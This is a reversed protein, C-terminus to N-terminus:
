RNVMAQLNKLIVWVLVISIGCLSIITLHHAVFGILEVARLRISILLAHSHNKPMVEDRSYIGKFNPIRLYTIWKTLDVNSLPKNVFKPKVINSRSVTHRQVPQEERFTVRKRKKLEMEGNVM